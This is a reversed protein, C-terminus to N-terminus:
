ILTSHSCVVVIVMQLSSGAAMSYSRSHYQVQYMTGSVVPVIAGPVHLLFKTHLLNLSGIMGFHLIV